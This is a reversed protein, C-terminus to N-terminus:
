SPAPSSCSRFPDGGIQTRADVRLRETRLREFRAGRARYVSRKADFHTDPDGVAGTTVVITGPEGACDSDAPFEDDLPFLNSNGLRLRALKRGRVAFVAGPRYVAAPSLTVVPEAGARGDIEALLLLRPNTGPWPLPRVAAALTRGGLEAVLLRRCARPRERDARLTVRDSAGDGDVDGALARGKVRYGDLEGDCAPAAEVAPDTKPASTPGSEGCGALAVAVLAAAAAPSRM